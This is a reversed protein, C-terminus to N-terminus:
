HHLTGSVSGQLNCGPISRPHLPLQQGPSPPQSPSSDMHVTLLNRVFVANFMENALSQICLILCELQSVNMLGLIIHLSSTPSIEGITLGVRHMDYKLLRWVTFPLRWVTFLEKIYGWYLAQWLNGKLILLHNSMCASNGLPWICHSHCQTFVPWQRTSNRGPRTQKQRRYM